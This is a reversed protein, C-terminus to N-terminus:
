GAKVSQIELDADGKNKIIFDHTLDKGEFIEGFDHSDAEIFAAPMGEGAHAPAIIIFFSLVIFFHILNSVGRYSM